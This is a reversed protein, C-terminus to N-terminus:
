KPPSAEGAKSLTPYMTPKDTLKCIKPPPNMPQSTAIGNKSTVEM